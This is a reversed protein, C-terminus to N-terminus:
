NRKKIKFIKFMLFKCLRKLINDIKRFCAIKKDFQAM